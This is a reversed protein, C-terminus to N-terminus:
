GLLAPVVTLLLLLLVVGGLIGLLAGLGQRKQPEFGIAGKSFQHYPAAYFVDVRQGPQLDVTLSAQGYARLWQSVVEVQHRGPPATIPATGGTPVGVSHGNLTVTPAVM